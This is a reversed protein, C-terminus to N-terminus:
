ADQRAKAPEAGAQHKGGSNSVEAFPRIGAIQEDALEPNDPDSAIMRQVKAEEADTLPREPSFQRPM